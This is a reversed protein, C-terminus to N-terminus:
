THNSVVNNEIKDFEDFLNGVIKELMDEVTVLGVVHENEKVIAISQANLQMIKFIEDVKDNPSVFFPARLLHKFNIQSITQKGYRILIDKMNLVGIVNDIDKEYVPIRTFQYKRLDAMIQKQSAQIHILKMDEKKVMIDKIIIDDFKLTNLMIRRVHADLIGVDKGEAIMMKLERETLKENNEDKIGLIKSFFALSVNLIVEFPYLLVSLIYLPYILAFSTREPYNKAIKKPIMDGFVLMFYALIVTLLLVSILEIQSQPARFFGLKLQIEQLFAEAAYGSAVFELFTIGIKITGFFKNPKQLMKKIKIAKQNGLKAMQNVKSRNLFTFSTDCASFIAKFCILIAIVIIKVLM